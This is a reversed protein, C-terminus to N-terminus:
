IPFLAAALEGLEVPKDCHPVDAYRSPLAGPSYGTAFAFPVGRKALADVVPYAMEGRLNVDVVAADPVEAAIAALAEAVTPVPGIVAAGARGLDRVLGKAIFYDDEVVLIRKGGLANDAETM